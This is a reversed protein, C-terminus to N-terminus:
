IQQPNLIAFSRRIYDEGSGQYRAGNLGLVRNEFGRLTRVEKLM